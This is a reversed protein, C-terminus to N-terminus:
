EDDIVEMDKPEKPELTVEWVSEPGYIPHQREKREIKIINFGLLSASVEVGELTHLKAHRWLKIKTM